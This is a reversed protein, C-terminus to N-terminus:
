RPTRTGRDAAAPDAARSASAAVDRMAQRAVRQLAATERWIRQEAALREEIPQWHQRPARPRSRREHLLALLHDRQDRARGLAYALAVALVMSFEIM